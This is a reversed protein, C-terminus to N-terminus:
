ARPETLPQLQVRRAWVKFKAAAPPPKVTLHVIEDRLVAGHRYRDPSVNLSGALKRDEGFFLVTLTPYELPDADAAPEGAFNALGPSRLRLSIEAQGEHLSLLQVDSVQDNDAALAAHEFYFGAGLALDEDSLARDRGTDTLVSNVSSSIQESADIWFLAGIAILAVAALLVWRNLGNGSM